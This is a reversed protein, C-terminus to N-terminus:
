LKLSNIILGSVKLIRSSFIHFVETKMFSWWLLCCFWICCVVDFSFSQVAFSDLLLINLSSFISYTNYLTLKWFVYSLCLEFPFLLIVWNFLPYLIQTFLKFLPCLFSWRLWIHYCVRTIGFSLLSLCTSQWLNM